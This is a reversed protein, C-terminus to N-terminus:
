AHARLRHAEGHLCGHGPAPGSRLQRVFLEVVPNVTGGTPRSVSFAVVDGAHALFTYTDADADVDLQGNVTEGCAITSTGDAVAGCVPSPPANSGGNWTGGVTDLTLSYTGTADGLFDSVLLTYTGTVTLPVTTECTQHVGCFPGQTNQSDINRFSVTQNSPNKLVAIVGFSSFRNPGGVSVSIEDGAAASFTYTDVESTTGITSEISQGCVLAVALAPRAALGVLAAVGLAIALGQTHVPWGTSM